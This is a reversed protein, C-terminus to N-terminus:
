RVEGRLDLIWFFIGVQNILLQRHGLSNRGTEGTENPSNWEELEKSCFSFFQMKQKERVYHIWDM